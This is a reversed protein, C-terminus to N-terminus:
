IIHATIVLNHEKIKLQVVCLILIVQDRFCKVCFRSCLLHYM